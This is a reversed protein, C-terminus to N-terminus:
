AALSNCLNLFLLLLFLGEGFFFYFYFYYFYYTSCLTPPPSNFHYLQICPEIPIALQPKTWKLSKNEFAHFLKAHRKHIEHFRLNFAIVASESVSDEEEYGILVKLM